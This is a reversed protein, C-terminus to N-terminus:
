APLNLVNWSKPLPAEVAVPEWTMPHRFALHRGHLAISAGRPDDLTEGLSGHAGYQADGVVPFGRSSCQLRVQHMRGTELTIELWTGIELRALVRFHLVATQAGEASPEVLEARAEGPVKRITDRWTGAEHVVDGEVVAWYTKRVMRGQFQEALRRAARAHRALVVAGSVPRDLRHPVGLYVNGPKSEREKLFRKVRAELSDIGPPAQTLLGGPKAVVLCPGNEYLFAFGPNV